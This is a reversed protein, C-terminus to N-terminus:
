CNMSFTYRRKWILNKIYNEKRTPIPTYTKEKVIEEDKYKKSCTKNNTQTHTHTKYLINIYVYLKYIYYM